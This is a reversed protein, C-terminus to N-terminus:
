CTAASGRRSTRRPSTRRRAPSCSPSRSGTAISCTPSRSSTSASASADPATRPTRSARPRPTSRPCRSRASPAPASRTWRSRRWSRRTSGARCDRARGRHVREQGRLRAPGPRACPLDGGHGAAVGTAAAGGDHGGGALHERDPPGRRVDERPAHRRRRAGDGDLRRRLGARGPRGGRERVRDLCRHSPHARAARGRARLDQRPPVALRQHERHVATGRVDHVAPRRALRGRLDVAGRDRRRREVTVGETGPSSTASRTSSASTRSAPDQPLHGPRRRAAPVRRRQPHRADTRDIFGVVVACRTATQRALEQLAELNDRVFEPRLM